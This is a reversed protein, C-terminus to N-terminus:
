ECWAAYDKYSVQTVGLFAVAEKLTGIEQWTETGPDYESIENRPGGM